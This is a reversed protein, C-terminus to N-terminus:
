PVIDIEPPPPGWRDEYALLLLDFAKERTQVRTRRPEKYPMFNACKSACKSADTPYLHGPVFSCSHGLDEGNEGTVHHAHICRAM